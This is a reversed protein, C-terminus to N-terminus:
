RNAKPTKKVTPLFHWRQEFQKRELDERKARIAGTTAGAVRMQQRIARMAPADAPPVLLMTVEIDRM